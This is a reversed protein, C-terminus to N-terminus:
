GQALLARAEAANPLDAQRDLAKRVLDKGRAADGSKVLAQGLHLQLLASEPALAVARELLPVAKADDGLRHHIWGLSDLYGPNRSDAFRSVLTLAREVSARDGKADALLFALNNAVADNDPARKYLAEYLAIAEDSRKSRTLWEARAMPIELEDPAAKEGQQLVALAGAVDNRLGLVRATHVYGLPATPALAIIERYNKEAAALDRRAIAVDGLLQYHLLNKPDAQRRTEIRAVAEDYRRTGTLAGIVAIYPMPDAPAIREAAEYEKLALEPRQTRAYFQGLKLAPQAQQPWRQRFDQLAKEAGARDNQQLALRVKADVLRVSAPAARLGNDLEAAAGRLDKADVMDAVLLLRLEPDEPKFKVAEGLVERALQPEGAARHAQALLGVAEVSAPQDRVVPRLAGIADKAHGERLLLRGQLLLGANDRPNNKLVDALLTRAEALQGGALRYAALQTKADVVSQPDQGLDVIEALVKQADAHRNNARYMQVLALRLAMNRPADAIAARFAKEAEAPGRRAAVFRLVEVMRAPDDPVAKAAERLVTEARDTEGRQAHYASWARWADFNKPLSRAAKELYTAARASDPDSAPLGASIQAAIQLLGLDDPATKLGQEVVALADKPQGRSVMVGAVLMTAEVPAPKAQALLAQAQAFAQDVQGRRLLVAAGLAQAKANQPERALAARVAAEAKDVDNAFLFARGVGIQAEVLGPQLDLAKQYNAYARQIDRQGESMQGALLYAQANKPDIQLVNRLEVNAKDWDTQRVYEAGKKLGSEIRGQKSSCAGLLVTTAALVTVAALPRVRLRSPFAHRNM